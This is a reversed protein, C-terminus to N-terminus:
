RGGRRYRVGDIELNIKGDLWLLPLSRDPVDGAGVRRLQTLHLQTKTASWHGSLEGGAAGRGLDATFTGDERFKWWRSEAQPGFTTFQHSSLFGAMQADSRLPTPGPPPPMRHCGLLLALLCCTFLWRLM